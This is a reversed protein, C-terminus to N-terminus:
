QKIWYLYAKTCIKSKFLEEDSQPISITCINHVELQNEKNIKVPINLKISQKAILMNSQGIVQGDVEIYYQQSYTNLNQLNISITKIQKTSMSDLKNEEGGFKIPTQSHSYLTGLLCLTIFAIKKM